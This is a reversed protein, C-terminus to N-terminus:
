GRRKRPKQVKVEKMSLVEFRGFMGNCAPRWDGVGVSTGARSLLNLVSGPDIISIDIDMHLNASWGEPFCGRFRIDASGNPLRVVDEKMYPRANDIPLVDEVVFFCGRTYTMNLGDVYRAAGVCSQKFAPGPIGYKGNKKDSWKARGPVVYLSELYENTPNRAVKKKVAKQIQKDLISQKPSEGFRHSIVPTLGIVQFQFRRWETRIIM